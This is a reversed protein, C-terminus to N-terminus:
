LSSLDLHGVATSQPNAAPGRVKRPAAPPGASGSGRGGEPGSYKESRPWPLGQSNGPDPPPPLSPVPLAVGLGVMFSAFLSGAGGLNLCFWLVSHGQIYLVTRNRFFRHSGHSYDCFCVPLISLLQTNLPHPLAERTACHNLTQRGICPVRTRAGTRSSGVHQPAAPGTLWPRQAQADPAQAGHHSLGCCHSAWM